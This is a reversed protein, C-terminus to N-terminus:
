SDGEKVSLAGTPCYSVCLPAERGECSDCSERIMIPKASSGGGQSQMDAISVKETGEPRGLLLTDELKIILGFYNKKEEARYLMVSSSLLSFAEDRHYSCAMECLSCANCKLPEISIELHM